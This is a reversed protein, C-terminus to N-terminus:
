RLKSKRATDSRSKLSRRAKSQLLNLLHGVREFNNVEAREARRLTGERAKASLLRMREKDGPCFDLTLIARAAAASFTPKAPQIVRRLIAVESGDGSTLPM